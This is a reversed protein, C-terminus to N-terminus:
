PCGKVKLAFTAAWCGTSGLALGPWAEGWLPLEQSYEPEGCGPQRERGARPGWGGLSVGGHSPQQTSPEQGPSAWPSSRGRSVPRQERGGPWCRGSPLSQPLWSSPASARPWSPVVHPCPQAPLPTQVRPPSAPPLFTATPRRSWLEGQERRIPGGAELLSIVGKRPHLYKSRWGAVEWGGVWGRRMREGTRGEMQGDEQGDRRYGCGDVWRRRWESM